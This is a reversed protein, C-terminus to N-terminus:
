QAVRFAVRANERNLLATSLDGLCDARDAVWSFMGHAVWAARERQQNFLACTANWVTDRVGGHWLSTLAVPGAQEEIRELLARLALWDEWVALPSQSITEPDLPRLAASVLAFLRDRARTALAAALSEDSPAPAPLTGQAVTCLQTLEELVAARLAVAAGGADRVDLELARAQARALAVASLEPEWAAALAFVDNMSIPRGLAAASLLLLHGLRPDLAGARAEEPEVAVTTPAPTVVAPAGPAHLRARV